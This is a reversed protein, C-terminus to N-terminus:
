DAQKSRLTIIHEGLSHNCNRCINYFLQQADNGEEEINVKFRFLDCGCFCRRVKDRENTPYDKLDM